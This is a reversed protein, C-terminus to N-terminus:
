FPIGEKIALTASATCYILKACKANLKTTFGPMNKISTLLEECTTSQPNKLDSCNAIADYEYPHNFKKHAQLNSTSQCIGIKVIKLEPNSL